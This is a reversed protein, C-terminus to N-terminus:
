VNQKEKKKFGMLKLGGATLLEGSHQRAKSPKDRTLM